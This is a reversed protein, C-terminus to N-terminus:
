VLDKAVAQAAPQTWVLAGTKRGTEIEAIQARNVGEAQPFGIRLALDALEAAAEIMRLQPAPEIVVM